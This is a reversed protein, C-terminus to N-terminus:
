AGSCTTGCTTSDLFNGTSCATCQTADAPATCASCKSDCASCTTGSLGNGM